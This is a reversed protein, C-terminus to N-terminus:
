FNSLFEDIEIFIYLKIYIRYKQLSERSSNEYKNMVTLKKLERTSGKYITLHLYVIFFSSIEIQKLYNFVWFTTRVPKWNDVM